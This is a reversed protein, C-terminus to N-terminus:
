YTYFDLAGLSVQAQADQGDGVDDSRSSFSSLGSANPIRTETPQPTGPTLSINCWAGCALPVSSVGSIGNVSVNVYAFNVNIEPSTTTSDTIYSSLVIAAQVRRGYTNTCYLLIPGTISPDTLIGRRGIGYGIFNSENDTSGNYLREPRLEVSILSSGRSGQADREYGEIFQNGIEGTICMRDIPTFVEVTELPVGKGIQDMNTVNTITPTPRNNQGQSSGTIQYLNWFLSMANRLSDEIQTDSPTGSDGKKFGGLTTWYDYGSVDVKEPCYPFFGLHAFRDTTPM